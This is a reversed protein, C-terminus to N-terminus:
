STWVRQRREALTERAIAVFVVVRLTLGILVIAATKAASLMPGAEGTATDVALSAHLEM